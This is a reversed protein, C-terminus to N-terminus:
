MGVLDEALTVGPHSDGGLADADFASGDGHLRRAGLEHTRALAEAGEVGVAVACM